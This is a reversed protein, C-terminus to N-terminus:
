LHLPSIPEVAAESSSQFKTCQQKDATPLYQAEHPSPPKVHSREEAAPLRQQDEELGKSIDTQDGDIGPPTNCCQDVTENLNLTPVTDNKLPVVESDNVINEHAVLEAVNGLVFPIRDALKDLRPKLRDLSEWIAHLRGDDTNNRQTFTESSAATYSSCLSFSSCDGLKSCTPSVDLSLEYDDDDTVTECTPGDAQMPCTSKEKSVIMNSTMSPALGDKAVRKSQQELSLRLVAKPASSKTM